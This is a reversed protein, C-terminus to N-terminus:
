ARASEAASAGEIQRKLSFEGPAGERMASALLMLVLVSGARERM